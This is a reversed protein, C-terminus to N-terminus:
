NIAMAGIKQYKLSFYSQTNDTLMMNDSLNIGTVSFMRDLSFRIDDSLMSTGSFMISNSLKVREINYDIPARM